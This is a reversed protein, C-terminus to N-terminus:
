LVPANVALVVYENVQVPAPPVLGAAVAVTVTVAAGPPGVGAGVTVRTAAGVATAAPPVEVRVQVDVLAVAQVAPPAHVPARAVLPLRAVPARVAFEVNENVQVPGPPVLAAADAVTLTMGVAVSVAAGVATAPPPFEVRVQVEVLAVAQVALPAHVPAKAAVPLLLVPASVAFEVYESVQVPGPPVLATADAVTM